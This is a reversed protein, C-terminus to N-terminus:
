DEDDDEGDNYERELLLENWVEPFETRLLDPTTVWRGGRKVAVECRKMWRLAKQKNWGLIRAVQLASIYVPRSM